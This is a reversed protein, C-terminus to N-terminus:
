SKQIEKLLGVLYKFEPTGARELIYFILSETNIIHAGAKEMQDLGNQWRLKTTSICADKLVIVEYGRRILDLTTQMVCIHTELGAVIAIPRHNNKLDELFLDSGCCSFTIKDTIKPGSWSKLVDSDTPGLGKLYHETGIMPIQLHSFMKTALLINNKVVKLHKEKVIPFFKEQFDILVFLLNERDVKDWIM